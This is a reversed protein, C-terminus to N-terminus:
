AENRPDAAGCRDCSAAYPEDAEVEWAHGLWGCVWTSLMKLFSRM